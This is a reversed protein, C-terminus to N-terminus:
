TTQDAISRPNNSMEEKEFVEQSIKAFSSIESVNFEMENISSCCDASNTSGANTIYNGIDRGTFKWNHRCPMGVIWSRVHIKHLIGHQQRNWCRVIFSLVEEFRHRKDQQDTNRIMLDIMATWECRIIKIM